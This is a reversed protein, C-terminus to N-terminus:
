SCRWHHETYSRGLLILHLFTLLHRNMETFHNQSQIIACSATAPVHCLFSEQLFSHILHSIVAAWLKENAWCLSQDLHNAIIPGGGIEQGLKLKIPSTAFIYVLLNPHSFYNQLTVYQAGTSVPNEKIFKLIHALPMVGTRKNPLTAERVIKAHFLRGRIVQCTQKQCIYNKWFFNLNTFGIKKM